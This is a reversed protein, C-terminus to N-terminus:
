KVLEGNKWIQVEETGDPRRLTVRGEPANGKWTGSLTAGDPETLVGPGSAKGAAFTGEFVAGDQLLAKGAGHPEGDLFEGTYEWGAPSMLTGTGSRLGAVYTGRYREGDPKGDMGEGEPVGGVFAGQYHLFEGEDLWWLEGFGEAKGSDIRGHFRAVIRGDDVVVLVGDGSAVDNACPGSWTLSTGPGPAEDSWVKCGSIPDTLWYDGAAAAGHGGILAAACALTAIRAAGLRSPRGREITDNM